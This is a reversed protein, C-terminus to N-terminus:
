QKTNNYEEKLPWQDDFDKIAKKIMEMEVEYMEEISYDKANSGLVSYIIKNKLDAMIIRIMYDKSGYGNKDLLDQIFELTKEFIENHTLKNM